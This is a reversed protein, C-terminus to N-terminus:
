LKEQTAVEESPGMDLGNEKDQTSMWKYSCGGYGHGPGLWRGRCQRELVEERYDGNTRFFEGGCIPCKFGLNM